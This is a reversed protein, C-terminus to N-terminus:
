RVWERMLDVRPDGDDNDKVSRAAEGIHRANTRADGNLGDISSPTAGSHLEEEKDPFMAIVESLLLNRDVIAHYQADKLSKARRSILFDEPARCEVHVRGMRPVHRVQVTFTQPLAAENPEENAADDPEGEKQDELSGSDFIGMVEYEPDNALQILGQQTVGELTRPPGPQPDEWATTIIGVRQVLGDYAFDHIIAAGDNDKFFM